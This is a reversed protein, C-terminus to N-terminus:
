SHERLDGAKPKKWPRSTTDNFGSRSALRLIRRHVDAGIM